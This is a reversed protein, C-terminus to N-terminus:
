LADREANVGSPRFPETPPAQCIIPGFPGNPTHPPWKPSMPPGYPDRVFPPRYPIARDRDPWQKRIADVIRAAEEKSDTIVKEVDMPKPKPNVLENESLLKLLQQAEELTLKTNLMGIKLDVEVVSTTKISIPEM